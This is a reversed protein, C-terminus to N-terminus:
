TTVLGSSGNNILSMILNVNLAVFLYHAGLKRKYFILSNNCKQQQGKVLIMREEFHMKEHM